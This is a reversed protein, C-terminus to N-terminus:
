LYIYLEDQKGSNLIEKIRKDAESATIMKGGSQYYQYREELIM